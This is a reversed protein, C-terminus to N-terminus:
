EPYPTAAAPRAPGLLALLSNRLAESGSFLAEPPRRYRLMEQFIDDEMTSNIGWGALYQLKLDIDRNIQAGKVWPAFDAGQGTYTALLDVVSSIGIGQLSEAVKAYDSRQLRQQVEDLNVSLPGAQGLFVMDYGRGGITNAWITGNPFAAFFTALESKITALDTEYLPVYLSFYGGPNLHALIADFYEKTYLAATGKAFVDLPDSAIVDFTEKTTMLYHRADDYVIRTRPDNKVGYNEKGFYRTSLEPIRPEIECITIREVSPYRTFTGATVGAGFGIGLVSKPNRHLLLPLHGVMRQLKMDYSINSAQVHGNVGLGISGDSWQAIAASSNRGEVMAIIRSDQTQIPAKRGYEVLVGPIPGISWALVGAAVAGAALWVHGARSPLAEVQPLFVILMSAGSALLLMRQTQQTGAWPVLALSVILAGAIAGLTNAAYVRGVTEASDEGPRAVAALALPFSAGWLITGPLIVWFVRALDLQFTYWPSLALFPNVPWYPLSYSIMLAAWAIAPMLLLQCWGLAIRPRAFRVLAAALLSGAALGILFVGLIISFVYTTSGLLMALLRTWVVQAGLATAGSIAIAAYISNRGGAASPIKQGSQGGSGGDQGARAEAGERQAGALGYSIGAVALNIAAAAYTAVAMDYVRLLYFGAFLAGFIAGGTNVGYLLSWWSVGRANGEIGRVIAPLSAGMLVTPPLLCIACIVGRLLMGPLGHAAGAMYVRNVLPLGFLVLVGCIGIGLELAAYVRLGQEAKLRQIRPLGMSGICLGGMFTALLFGLSVSTSGIALQLLQFWVIEYILAACGSGAFLVLLWPLRRWADGRQGPGVGPEHRLAGKDSESNM